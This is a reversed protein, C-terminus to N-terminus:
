PHYAAYSLVKNEREPDDTIAVLKIEALLMSMLIWSYSNITKESKLM